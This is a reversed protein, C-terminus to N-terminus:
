YGGGIQTEYLEKYIKNIKLLEEHTGCGTLVGQELVIIKDVKKVLHNFKHAVIIGKKNELLELYLDFLRSESIADLAANPEDLIYLDADKVFARAIGIKQWQGLSIQKGNDFWYGIQCDLKEDTENILNCLDFKQCITNLQEDDSLTALNGYAINERFTAEYKYFDQFVTAIRKLISEKKIRKLEIGNIYIEGEYDRYFGMIIKLLTTKGSGNQGVIAVTESGDICLNIDKLVYQQESKYRYYLHKIEISDISKIDVQNKTDYSEEEPLDLYERLQDIFMSEQNMGAFTQLITMVLTKVQTITKMYTMVNGVLIEGTYGAFIIYAFLGGDVFSEIVTASGLELSSKKKIKLDEQNFKKNYGTYKEIFYQFLNYTKLEKYAEGYTLVHQAYWCKRSDNTRERMVSFTEKNIKRNIQFKIVPIILICLVIWVRFRILIILYSTLTIAGSFVGAFSEFYTLLKGDTEYQARSIMDYIESNEYSKLSLQGAKQLVKQNFYLSYGQMFKIKYYEFFYELLIQFLDIAIYSVVLVALTQFGTRKQLSNIINQTIITIFPPLIGFIAMAMGYIALYRSDYRYISKVVWIINKFSSTKKEM